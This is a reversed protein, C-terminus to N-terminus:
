HLEIIFESGKGEETEVRLDGEHAKIIDYSLSLGLGTGQGAPKTTFFPQFIKDKVKQPIGTGNDKVTILVHNGIRKTSVSITPEYGMGEAKKREGVAYFANNYLNLLVSGIDQPVINIKGASIDFDSQVAVNFSKDKARVGNYSLRLYTDALANIDTLEKQGSSSRSHQLMGKVIADARKGHHNIKEENSEIDNLIENELITNREGEVKQREGKLEEILEKNVDSFNNVFNLPNQIEHAIGATLEGLSAMKESQILQAQTSKLETLTSEVKEKEQQLLANAKQRHKNHRYQLLAIILVALVVICLAAITFYQINKARRADADKKQQESAQLAKEKNLLQIEKDKVEAIRQNELAAIKTKNDDNFISDKYETSQKYFRLADKYNGRLAETESLKESYQMMLYLEGGKESLQFARYYYDHAKQLLITRSIKLSDPIIYDDAGNKAVLFYLDAIGGNGFALTRKIDLKKAIGIAQKFFIMASDFNNQKQLFIGRNIYIRGLAPQDNIEQFLKIAQLNYENVKELEGEDGYVTAINDLASAIGYKDNLKRDLVLAKNYNEIAKPYDNLQYYDIGINNYVAAINPQLGAEEYIALAKFNNEVAKTYSGLREYASAMLALADGMGPKRNIDKFIGYATDANELSTTFDSIGFYVLAKNIYAIGIGKKWQYKKSLQMVSDAYHLAAPPDTQTLAKVAKVLLKVQDTDNKTKAMAKILSDALAKGQLSQAHVPCIGICTFFAALFVAIFYKFTQLNSYVTLLFLSLM